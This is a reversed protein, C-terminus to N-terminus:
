QAGSHPYCVIKLHKWRVHDEMSIIVKVTSLDIEPNRMNLAPRWWPTRHNRINQMESNVLGVDGNNYEDGTIKDSKTSRVSEVKILYINLFLFKFLAFRDQPENSSWMTTTPSISM